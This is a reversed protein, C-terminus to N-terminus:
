YACRRNRRSEIMESASSRHYQSKYGDPGPQAPSDHPRSGSPVARILRRGGIGRGTFFPSPLLRREGIGRGGEGCIGDRMAAPASSIITGRGGTRM